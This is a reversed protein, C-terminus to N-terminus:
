GNNRNFNQNLWALLEKRKIPVDIAEIDPETEDDLNYQKKLNVIENDAEKKSAFWALVVGENPASFWVRYLKM